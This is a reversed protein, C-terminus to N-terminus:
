GPRDTTLAAGRWGSGVWDVGDGTELRLRLSLQGAHHQIHRINYIHLEARSLSRRSEARTSLTDATEGEMVEVAKSRCHELYALISAKDYLRVPARDEFEEYDGFFGENRRHFPQRRFSEEDDHGLYLDTFILTHFVLQCFKYNAGRSNWVAEPCKDVSAKLMSLAAEYQRTVLTKFADLM